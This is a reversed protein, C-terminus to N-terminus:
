KLKINILYKSPIGKEIYKNIEMLKKWNKISLQPEFTIGSKVILEHEELLILEKETMVDTYKEKVLKQSFLVRIFKDTMDIMKKSECCNSCYNCWFFKPIQGFHELIYRRKCGPYYFYNALKNLSRLKSTEIEKDFGGKKINSTGIAINKYQFLLIAESANGDRGARGIMQYYEEISNPSGFIIVCRVTQDIGMGFAITAVIINVKGSNFKTQTKNRFDKSMGAHYYASIVGYKKNIEKSLEITDNRSNTYIIIRDGMYKEIYSEINDLVIKKVGICKLYINPRDFNGIILKPNNMNLHKIIDDVVKITATATVAMIPINPYYKRFKNIKLYDDRFDHGWASVCHSEDIAIFGLRNQEILTNALEFGDGKILYEPSMYVINIDGDIISFIEKSKNVNNSHLTAVPIDMAMLKEKQDEMLSILPSIIFMVKNSLLPPLLYCLSKGYGTPLLGIVDNGGMYHSLLEHQKDKLKDIKWYKKIIIDINEM